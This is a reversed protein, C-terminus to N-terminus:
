RFAHSKHHLGMFAHADLSHTPWQVIDRCSLTRQSAGKAALDPQQLVSGGLRRQGVKAAARRPAPVRKGAVLRPSASSTMVLAM